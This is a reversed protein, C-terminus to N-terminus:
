MAASTEFCLKFGAPFTGPTGGQTPTVKANAGFEVRYQTEPKWVHDPDSLTGVEMILATTGATAGLRLVDVEADPVRTGGGACISADAGEFIQVDAAAPLGTNAIPATWYFLVPTDLDQVFSGNTTAPGVPPDSFRLKMPAVKFMYTRQDAPVSEGQKNHVIDKITVECAAGVPITLPMLPQIFLSPGPPWSNPAGNPAYYGNYPVDVNNCKLTVPQTNILTGVQPGMPNTPDMPILDEVSPDLLKDFVIHMFWAPPVAEVAGAKPAPKSLDDPCVQTVTFDPLGVLTPRKDDNLRCYTAEEILRSFFPPSPDFSTLLDSLVLVATVNPPGDKRLDTRQEPTSCGVLLACALIAAAVASRYVLM